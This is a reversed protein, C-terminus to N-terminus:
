NTLKKKTEHARQVSPPPPVPPTTWQSTSSNKRRRSIFYASAVIGVVIGVILALILWLPIGFALSSLPSSTIVDYNLTAVPTYDSGSPANSYAFLTLFKFTYTGSDLATYNFSDSYPCPTVWSNSVSSFMLVNQGWSPNQEDLLYVEITWWHLDRVNNSVIFNGVLSDGKQLEVSRNVGTMGVPIQFTETTTAYAVRALPSNVMMLLLLVSLLFVSTRM